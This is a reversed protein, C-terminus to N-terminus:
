KAPKVTEKYKEFKEKVESFLKLGEEGSKFYPSQTYAKAIDEAYEKNTKAIKEVAKSFKDIIGRPTGKPFFFTYMMPVVIDYGQEKCTPIDPILPNREESLIGLARFEGNQLYQKISGYANPILQVHGGKLAALRDAASGVDVINLNAGYTTLLLCEMQTLSGVTGAAKLKNNKSYEILEKLTRYPADAKVTFIDYNVAGICAIEFDKFGFDAVGTIETMIMNTHNMLITYGDPASEKVKRSAIAGGSGTINVVAIPKGLEKELYKAYTRANFDTDGGAAYPVILQISKKPWDMEPQEKKGAGWLPLLMGVALVVTWASLSFRNVIQKM